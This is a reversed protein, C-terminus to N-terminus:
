VMKYKTKPTTIKKLQKQQTKNKNKQHQQQEKTKTVSFYHLTQGTYTTIQEIGWRRAQTKSTLLTSYDM